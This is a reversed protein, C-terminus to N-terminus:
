EFGNIKEFLDNMAAAIRSQYIRPDECSIEKNRHFIKKFCKESRKKINYKQLFDIIGISYNREIGQIDYRTCSVIRPKYFAVLVSYDIIEHKALVAFDELIGSILSDKHAPQLYLRLGSEKFNLDKLVTGYPPETFDFNGSVLRHYTCGKIDFILADSIDSILNEMVIFDQKLPNLRFLGIIRSLRSDSNNIRKFYDNLMKLLAAKEEKSITKVLFRQSHTFFIM